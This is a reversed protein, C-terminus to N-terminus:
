AGSEKSKGSIWKKIVQYKDEFWMDIPGEFLEQRRIWLYIFIAVLIIAASPNTFAAVLTILGWFWIAWRRRKIMGYAIVLFSVGSLMRAFRIGFSVEGGFIDTIIAGLIGLGGVLSLLAIIRVGITEGNKPLLVNMEEAIKEVAKEAKDTEEPDGDVKYDITKVDDSLQEDNIPM